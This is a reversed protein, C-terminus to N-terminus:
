LVGLTRLGREFDALAEKAQSPVLDFGVEHALANRLKHARWIHDYIDRDGIRNRASKLREGMTDGSLGQQRMAHDFLKDAENIAQRLGNGGGSAAMAEITAWRTFIQERSMPEVGHRRATTHARRRRNRKPDTAVLAWVLAGGVLALLLFSFLASSSM